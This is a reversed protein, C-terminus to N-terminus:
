PHKQKIYDSIYKDNYNIDYILNKLQRDNMVQYDAFDSVKEEMDMYKNFLYIVLIYLILICIFNIVIMSFNFFSSDYRGNSNM